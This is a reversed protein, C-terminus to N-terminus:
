SRDHACPRVGELSKATSLAPFRSAPEVAHVTTENTFILQKRLSQHVAGLSSIRPQKWKLGASGHTCRM